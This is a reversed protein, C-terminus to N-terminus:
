QRQQSSRTPSPTAPATSARRQRTLTMNEVNAALAYTISALVTDTGQNALETVVDGANDVVYTDNGDGGILTDAGIGGDLMTPAPAVTWPTTAATVPSPIDDGGGGIVNEISAVSTFGTASTTALNVACRAPPAPTTSHTAPRGM